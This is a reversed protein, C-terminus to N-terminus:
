FMLSQPGFTKRMLAIDDAYLEAVIATLEDDFLSGASAVRGEARAVLHALPTTDPGLEDTKALHSTDHRLLDRADVVDLGIREKLVRVATGFDALDFLDDYAEYVLFDVQPRWHEDAQVIKPLALKEMFTRFTFEEPEMTRGLVDHLRWFPPYRGVIKDLYCSALRRFPCRLIAFAYDATLLYELSASFTQNNPHIWNVAEPGSIAGNAMGVTLRMTSCGNKPIFSYVARGPIIMLAYRAAFQHAENRALPGYGLDAPGLAAAHRLRRVM